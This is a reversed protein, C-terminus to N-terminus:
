LLDRDRFMDKQVLFHHRSGSPLERPQEIFYDQRGLDNTTGYVLGTQDIDESKRTLDVNLALFDLFKILIGVADEDMAQGTGANEAGHGRLFVRIDDLNRFRKGPAIVDDNEVRKVARRIDVDIDVDAGDKGDELALATGFGGEHGPIDQLLAALLNRGPINKVARGGHQNEGAAFTDV